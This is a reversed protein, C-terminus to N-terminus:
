SRELTSTPRCQRWRTHPPEPAAQTYTRGKGRQLSSAHQWCPPHSLCCTPPKQCLAGPVAAAASPTEQRRGNGLGAHKTCRAPRRQGLSGSRTHRSCCRARSRAQRRQHCGAVAVPVESPRAPRWRAKGEPAPPGHKLPGRAVPTRRGDDTWPTAGCGAQQRCKEPGGDLPPQSLSDGPQAPRRSAPLAQLAASPRPHNRLSPLTM